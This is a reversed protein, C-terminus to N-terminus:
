EDVPVSLWLMVGGEAREEVRLEGGLEQARYRLRKLQHFGPPEATGDFLGIGDDTIQLHVTRRTIHMTVKAMQAHAHIIVNDLAAEIVKILLDRMEKPVRREDGHIHMTLDVGAAELETRLHCLVAEISSLSRRQLTPQGGREKWSLLPLSRTPEAREFASETSGGETSAAGSHISGYEWKQAEKVPQVRGYTRWRCWRGLEAGASVLAVAGFPLLARLMVELM